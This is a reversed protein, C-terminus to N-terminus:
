GQGRLDVAYVQYSDALMHMMTQYSWWSSSQGPILLLAPSAPSGAVAYNMRIEGLDVIHEPFDRPKFIEKRDTWESYTGALRKQEQAGAVTSPNSGGDTSKANM